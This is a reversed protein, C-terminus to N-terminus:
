GHLFKEDLVSIGCWFCLRHLSQCFKGAFIKQILNQGLVGCNKGSCFNRRYIRDSLWLDAYFYIWNRRRQHVCSRGCARALCLDAGFIRRTQEGFDVRGLQYVNGAVDAACQACPNQHIRRCHYAGYFNRQSDAGQNYNKQKIQAKSNEMIISGFVMRREM